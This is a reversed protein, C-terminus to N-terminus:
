MATKRERREAHSHAYKTNYICSYTNETYVFQDPYYPTIFFQGTLENMWAHM